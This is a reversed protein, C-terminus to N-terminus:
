TKILKEQIALIADINKENINLKHGEYTYTSALNIFRPWSGQYYVRQRMAPNFPTPFESAGELRTVLGPGVGGVKAAQKDAILTVVFGIESPNDLSFIVLVYEKLVVENNSFYLYEKPMSYEYLNGSVDKQKLSVTEVTERDDFKIPNDNKSYILWVEPNAGFNGEFKIKFFTTYSYSYDRCVTMSFNNRFTPIMIKLNKVKSKTNQTCQLFKIVIEEFSTGDLSLSGLNIENNVEIHNQVNTQQGSYNINGQNFQNDM